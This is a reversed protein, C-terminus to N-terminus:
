ATKERLIVEFWKKDGDQGVFYSGVVEMNRHDRQAKAESLHKWSQGPQIHKRTRGPKRGQDHKPRARMGKVLRVRVIIYGKKAKYGLERARAPNTPNEVRILPSQKRWKILRERYVPMREKYSKAFSEQIYKYAGM